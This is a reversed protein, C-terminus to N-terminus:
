KIMGKVTMWLFYILIILLAKRALMYEVFAFFYFECMIFDNDQMRFINHTISKHKTKKLVEKPIHEVGFSDFYAVANRVIFISIRNTGKSEKDDLNIVYAGNNVEPSENISFFAM